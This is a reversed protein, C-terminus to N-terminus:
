RPLLTALRDAPRATSAPLERARAPTGLLTQGSTPFSRTVVAGAGVVCREGLRVGKLIVAHAGVWTGSGLVIEASEYGQRAIPLHPDDVRHNNDHLCAYEAVLVDEELVLRRHVSLVVGRGLFVRPELILEAGRGVTLEVSRGVHVGDGILIRGGRQPIDVWGEFRVGRGLRTFFLPALLRYFGTWALTRLRHLLSAM